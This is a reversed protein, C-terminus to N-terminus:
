AKKAQKVAKDLVNAVLTQGKHHLDKGPELAENVVQPTMQPVSVKKKSLVGDLLRAIEKRNEPLTWYDESEQLADEPRSNTTVAMRAQWGAAILDQQMIQLLAATRENEPTRPDDKVDRQHFFIYSPHNAELIPAKRNNGLDLFGCRFNKQHRSNEPGYRAKTELAQGDLWDKVVGGFAV